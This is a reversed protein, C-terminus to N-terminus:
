SLGCSYKFVDATHITTRKDRIRYLTRSSQHARTNGTCGACAANIFLESMTAKGRSIHNINIASNHRNRDSSFRAPTRPNTVACHVFRRRTINLKCFYIYVLQVCMHVVRKKKPARVAEPRPSISRKEWRRGDFRKPGRRFFILYFDQSKREFYM